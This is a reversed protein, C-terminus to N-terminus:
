IECRDGICAYSNAGTTNDDEEYVGLQAYSIAPLKAMMDQYAAETIEEYPALTYQHDSRPLFAIGCVDDFTEYVWAGVSLWENEGVYVTISPNHECWFEKVM